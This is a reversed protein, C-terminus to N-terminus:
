TYLHREEIVERVAEPVMYRYPLGMLVRRRIDRSSIDIMPLDLFRVKRSIGPLTEELAALDFTQEPRRMVGLTCYSLIEQPRNWNPLDGLSDGGMLFILDGDPYDQSVLRVTDATWHPGPRDIDVRSLEFRLNGDIAAQMLALRDPLSSISRDRKHPPDGALAWLLRELGLQACAEEALILHGIHPPDFTGGFLGLSDTM